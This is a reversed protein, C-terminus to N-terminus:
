ASPMADLSVQLAGIQEKLGSTEESASPLPAEAEDAPMNSSSSSSDRAEADGGKTPASERKASGRSLLPADACVVSPGGGVAASAAGAASTAGGMAMPSPTSGAAHAHSPAFAVHGAGSPRSSSRATSFLANLQVALRESTRRRDDLLSLVAGAAREEADHAALNSAEAQAADASVLASAPAAVGGGSGGAGAGSGAAGTMWADLERLLQGIRVVQQERAEGASLWHHIAGKVEDLPPDAGGSSTSTTAADWAACTRDVRQMAAEGQRRRELKEGIEGLERQRETEEASVSDDGTTARQQRQGGSHWFAQALVNNALASAREAPTGAERATILTRFFSEAANATAPFLAAFNPAEGATEATEATVPM